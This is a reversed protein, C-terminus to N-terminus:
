YGISTKKDKGHHNWDILFYGLTVWHYSAIFFAAFFPKRTQILVGLPISRSSEMRKKDLTRLVSPLISASVPVVASPQGGEVTEANAFSASYQDSIVSEWRLRIRSLASDYTSAL